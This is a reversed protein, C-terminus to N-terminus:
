CVSISESGKAWFSGCGDGSAAKVTGAGTESFSLREASGAKRSARAVEVPPVRM